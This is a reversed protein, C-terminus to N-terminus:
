LLIWPLPFYSVLVIALCFGIFFLMVGVIMSYIMDRRRQKEREKRESWYEM